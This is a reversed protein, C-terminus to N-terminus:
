LHGMSLLVAINRPDQNRRVHNVYAGLDYDRYAFIRYADVAALHVYNNHEYRVQIPGFLRAYNPQPDDLINPM